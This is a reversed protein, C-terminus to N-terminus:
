RPAVPAHSWCTWGMNKGPRTPHGGWLRTGYVSDVLPLQWTDDGEAPFACVKTLWTYARLLAQDQWAFAEPYGARTLLAAQVLAGQLAEWVYGEKPPPWCFAGGGAEARRQDDPLVGDISHGDRTAGLPNIGVPRSTDAQWDLARFMFGAYLERDGLWGKFVAAASALEASDGTYAAVAIRAAGAHTGWNNPRTAHCSRLSYGSMQTGLLAATWTRFRQELDSPLGVLDAALVYAPLKRAPALARVTLWDKPRGERHGDESGIVDRVADVVDRKCREDGTRAHVLARALVLVNTDQEGHQLDPTDLPRQAANVLHEWAAGQTPLQGLEEKNTWLGKRAPGTPALRADATGHASAGGCALAHGGLLLTGALWTRRDFTGDLPATM